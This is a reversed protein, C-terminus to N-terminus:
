PRRKAAEVRAVLNDAITQIHSEYTKSPAYPRPSYAEFTSLRIRELLGSSEMHTLMASHTRHEEIHEPCLSVVPREMAVCESIMSLSDETCFFRSASGLYSELRASEESGYWISSLVSEKPMAAQLIELGKTGTRRSTSVVWQIAYKNSLTEVAQALRQWDAESYQYGSGNGGIFLAWIGGGKAQKQLPLGLTQCEIKDIKCLAIRTAVSNTRKPQGFATVHADILHEPVNYENGILINPVRWRRSLFINAAVVNGGFSIVVDPNVPDAGSVRFFFGFFGPRYLVPSAAILRALRNLLKIRPIAKIIAIDSDCESREKILKAVGLSQTLHGPKGDYLVLIKKLRM